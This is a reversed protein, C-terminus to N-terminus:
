RDQSLFYLAQQTVSCYVVSLLVPAALEMQVQTGLRGRGLHVPRAFDTVFPTALLSFGGLRVLRGQVRSEPLLGLLPGSYDLHLLHRFFVWLGVLYVIKDPEAGM